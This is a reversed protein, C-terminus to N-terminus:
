IKLKKLILKNARDIACTDLSSLYIQTTKESDHGLGESIVGTPIGIAKAASAWSHRAVYLTLPSNISVMAAIKKLSRNISYAKRQYLRRTDTEPVTIIPLLYDTPAAPYKDIIKQMEKTWEIQLRQGTKRRRYVIHGHKLDVKKLFAMDIFSMGRLYFSLMFIDRAYDLGPSGSLDLKMISQIVEMPLARKATRSIGTYVRRFPKRDDIVGSDVARNYVARLIRMYFSTTNPVNGRSKLWAEFSEAIEPTFDELHIDIGRHFERFRNLAARYTESTRIRNIRVLGAIVGEAFNAMTYDHMYRSFGDIIDDATYTLGADALEREIKAIREINRRIKERVALTYSKRGVDRAVAVTGSKEGWEEPYINYGTQYLRTSGGCAVQYIVTGVSGADGSQRFKVKISSM